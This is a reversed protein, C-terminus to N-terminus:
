PPKINMGMFGAIVTTPLLLVSVVTLIKVIDNTRQATRNAQIDFTGLLPDRTGPRCQERGQGTAARCRTV